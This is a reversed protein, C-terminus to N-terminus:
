HQTAILIAGSGHDTSYRGTAEIGSLHTITKVEILPVRSLYDVTGMPMGDVYVQVPAM